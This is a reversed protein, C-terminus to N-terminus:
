REISTFVFFCRRGYSVLISFVSGDDLACFYGYYSSMSELSFIVPCGLHSGKAVAKLHDIIGKVALYLFLANRTPNALGLTM